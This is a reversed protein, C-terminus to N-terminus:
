TRVVFVRISQRSAGDPSRLSEVICSRQSWDCDPKPSPMKHNLKPSVAHRDGAKLITGCEAEFM